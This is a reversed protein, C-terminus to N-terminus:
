KFFFQSDNIYKMFYYFNLIKAKIIRGGMPYTARM